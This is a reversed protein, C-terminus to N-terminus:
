DDMHSEHRSAPLIEMDNRLRLMLKILNKEDDSIVCRIMFPDLSWIHVGPLNNTM